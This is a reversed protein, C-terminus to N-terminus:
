FYLAAVLVVGAALGALVTFKTSKSWDRWSITARNGAM